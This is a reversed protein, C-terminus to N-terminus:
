NNYKAILELKKYIMKDKDNFAGAWTKHMPPTYLHMKKNISIFQELKLPGGKILIIISILILITLM